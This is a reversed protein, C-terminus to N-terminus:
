ERPELTVKMRQGIRLNEDRDLEIIAELTRVDNFHHPELV